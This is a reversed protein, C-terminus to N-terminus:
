SSTRGRWNWAPPACGPLSRAARPATAPVASRGACRRPLPDVMHAFVHRWEADNVAAVATSPAPLALHAILVDIGGAEAVVRAAMGADDGLPRADAIVKAGLAGFVRQLAPGMFDRAQTILVRKGQLEILKM